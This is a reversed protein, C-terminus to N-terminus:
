KFIFFSKSCILKARYLLCLILESKLKKPCNANYNLLFDTRTPKRWIWTVINGSYVKICVDLFLICQLASEM